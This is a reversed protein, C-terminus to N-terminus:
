PKAVSTLQAAHHGRGVAAQKTMHNWMAVCILLVL